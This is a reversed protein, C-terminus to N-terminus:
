SLLNNLVEITIDSPPCPYMVQPVMPSYSLAPCFPLQIRLRAALYCAQKQIGDLVGGQKMINYWTDSGSFWEADSPGTTIKKVENGTGGIQNGLSNLYANAGQFILDQTVLLSILKNVLPPYSNELYIDSAAITPEVLPYLFDQQNRIFQLIQSTNVTIGSPINMLVMQLLNMNSISAMGSAAVNITANITDVEGVTPNTVTLAVNYLGAVSYTHAPSQSTSTQGDGFNWAYTTAPVVNASLNTFTVTLGNGVFNFYAVPKSM